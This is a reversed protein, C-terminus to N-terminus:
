SLGECFNANPPLMTLDMFHFTLKYQGKRFGQWIRPQTPTPPKLAGHPAAPEPTQHLVRNSDPVPPVVQLDAGPPTQIGWDGRRLEGLVSFFCIHSVLKYICYIVSPWSNENNTNHPKVNNNNNSEDFYTNFLEIIQNSCARRGLEITFRFCM